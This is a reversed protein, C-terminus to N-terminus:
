SQPNYTRVPGVTVNRQTDLPIYNMDEQSDTLQVILYVDAQWVAHWFDEITQKTPGQAAIYFRQKDGVTVTIHSANIYSFALLIM